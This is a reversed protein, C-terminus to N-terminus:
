PSEFNQLWSPEIPSDYDHANSNPIKAAATPSHQTSRCLAGTHEYIFYNDDSAIHKVAALM